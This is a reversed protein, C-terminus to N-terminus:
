VRKLNLLIIGQGDQEPEFCRYKISRIELTLSDEIESDEFDDGILDELTNIDITLRSYESTSLSGDANAEFFTLDFIGTTSEYCTGKWHITIPEAFEGSPGFVTKFDDELFQPGTSM